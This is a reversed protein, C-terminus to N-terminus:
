FSIFGKFENFLNFNLNDLMNEISSKATQYYSYSPSNEESNVVHQLFRSIAQPNKALIDGRIEPCTLALITEHKSRDFEPLPIRNISKFNLKKNM